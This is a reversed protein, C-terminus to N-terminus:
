VRKVPVYIEIFGARERVDARPLPPLEIPLDYRVVDGNLAFVAPHCPCTLQRAAADLQLRCGLHTCTSSVAQLGGPTRTVYGAFTDLEFEHVDGERLDGSAAVIQWTGAPKPQEPTSGDRVFRDITAGAALSAAAIGATQVVRRRTALKDKASRADLQEALESELRAVFEASPATDATQAAHLEIAARMAEAEEDDPRFPEPPHQGILSDVFRSVDNM